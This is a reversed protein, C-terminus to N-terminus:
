NTKRENNEECQELFEALEEEKKNVESIKIVCTKSMCFQCKEPLDASKPPKVRTNLFSTVLFLAIVGAIILVQKWVIVIFM